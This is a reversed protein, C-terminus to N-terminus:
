FHWRVHWAISTRPREIKLNDDVFYQHRRFEINGTLNELYRMRLRLGHTGAGANQPTLLPDRPALPQLAM